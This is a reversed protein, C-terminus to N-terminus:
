TLVKQKNKLRIVLAGEGGFSRPANEYSILIKKVEKQNLWIPVEKKLLGTKNLGKGTIILINRKNNNFAQFVYTILKIKAEKLNYGHLDIIGDPEIRNKNLLKIFQKFTNNTIYNKNNNEKKTKKNLDENDSNFEKKKINIRLKDMNLTYKKWIERDEKSLLVM